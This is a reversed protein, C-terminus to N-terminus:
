ASAAVQAIAAVFADVESETTLRSLSARVTGAPWTGIARHMGPACHLGARVAIDFSEELIAAIDLPDLGEITLSLAGIQREVATPAHLRVRRVASLGDRMRSLLKREHALTTEPRVLKMAAGLGALGVTNPTGAELHIPMQTPQLPEDSESGTGGERWATLHARPGSYLVGTGPPGMLAKHGPFAILDACLSEPHIDLVGASQAADVLLLADHERVIRGIDAIPQIAGTVNSVQICAVLKTEPRLARRIDDPDVLGDSGVPIETLAVDQRAQLGRLPRRVSNHEAATFVAHDTPRLMGKIAANLADTGNLFFAIREPAVGGLLRATQLRADDLIRLSEIARRHGGRGPNGGAEEFFRQMAALVEPPKPWSTAAHDLYIM